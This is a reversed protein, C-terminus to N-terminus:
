LGTGRVIPRWHRLGISCISRHRVASLDPNAAAFQAWSPEQADSLRDAVILM